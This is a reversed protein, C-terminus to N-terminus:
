TFQQKKLRKQKIRSLLDYAEQISMFKEEAQKKMEPDLHRDPHWQRALKRYSATINEQSADVELGLVRLANNEGQTDLAEVIEKWLGIFGETRIFEILRQIVTTFELWAPSNFFNRLADRCKVIEEDKDVVNCNFYFWSIWLSCYLLICLLFVSVTTTSTRSPAIPTRRWCLSYKIFVVLCLISTLMVANINFYYLPATLYASILPWKLSGSYRGINGM